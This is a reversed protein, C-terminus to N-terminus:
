LKKPMTLPVRPSRMSEPKKTFKIIHDVFAIFPPVRWQQRTILSGLVVAEALHVAVEQPDLPQHQQTQWQGWAANPVTYQPVHAERTSGTTYFGGALAPSTLCPNRDRPQSARRSSFIAARELIRAQSIGPATHRPEPIATIPPSSAIDERKMQLLSTWMELQVFIQDKLSAIYMWNLFRISTCWAINIPLKEMKSFNLVIIHFKYGPSAFHRVIIMCLVTPSFNSTYM